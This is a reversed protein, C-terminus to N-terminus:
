PFAELPPDRRAVPRWGAVATRALMEDVLMNDPAGMGVITRNILLVQDAYRRASDMDHTVMVVTRGAARQRALLDLILRESAADVGALPEDLLLLRAEQALARALLVRKKQGGSLAGIPRSAFDRMNVAELCRHVVDWHRSEAWRPPLLRRWWPDTRMHGFRGTLVTDQVSIPFDWEVAEQQAMYAIHGLRRQRAPDEGHVTVEGRLPKMVGLLIRFLTSKGAGNPGIIATWKGAPLAIDVDELVPQGDYAASLRKVEVAMPKPTLRLVVDPKRM